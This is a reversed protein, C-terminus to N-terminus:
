SRWDKLPQSILAQLGIFSNVCILRPRMAAPSRGKPRTPLPLMSEAADVFQNLCQEIQQDCQSLQSGYADYLSLEQQLVFVHEDRYDGSLAAAITDQSKLVRRDKLQALTQPNREGFVIARIISMGTVGTIDSLVRHLQVNMQSLAKQMRQIHTSRGEQLRQRQRIYSRLVCVEDEPRFSGSLLGYRHLRQIWQCDLVDSKRGPVTKMLRSNVLKVEFGRRELIQFLPLWYVGTSEMAVTEIGCETLWDALQELEVTFCGFARVSESASGKPVCVWHESAGIDIGCAHDNLLEWQPSNVTSVDPQPIQSRCKLKM